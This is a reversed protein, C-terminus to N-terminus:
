TINHLYPIHLNSTYKVTVHSTDLEIKLNAIDKFQTGKCKVIDCVLYAIKKFQTSDFKDLGKCM